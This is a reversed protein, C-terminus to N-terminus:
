QNGRNVTRKLGRGARFVPLKSAPVSVKVVQGKRALAPNIGERAARQKVSFTGFGVVSVEDGAVLTEAITTFVSDVLVAADKKTIKNKKAVAAVLDNKKM